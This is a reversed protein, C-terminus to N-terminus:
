PQVTQRTPKSQTTKIQCSLRKLDNTHIVVGCHGIPMRPRHIVISTIGEPKFEKTWKDMFCYWDALQKWPKAPTWDAWISQKNTVAAITNLRFCVLGRIFILEDKKPFLREPIKLRSKVNIVLGAENVTLDPGERGLLPIREISSFNGIGSLVANFEAAVHREVDKWRKDAM